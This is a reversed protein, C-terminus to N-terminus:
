SYVNNLMIRIVIIRFRTLNIRIVYIFIGNITIVNIVTLDIWIGITRSAYRRFIMIKFANIGIVNIM